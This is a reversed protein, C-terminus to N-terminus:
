KNTKWVGGGPYDKKGACGRKGCLTARPLEPIEQGM